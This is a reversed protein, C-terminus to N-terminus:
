ADKESSDSLYKQLKKMAKLRKSCEEVAERTYGKLEEESPPEIAALPDPIEVGSAGSDMNVITNVTKMLNSEFDPSRKYEAKLQNGMILGEVYARFIPSNVDRMGLSYEQLSSYFQQLWKESPLERSFRKHFIAKVKLIIKKFAAYSLGSIIAILAISALYMLWNEPPPLFYVVVLRDQRVKGEAIDKEYRRRYNWAFAGLEITNDRLTEMISADLISSCKPCKSNSATVPEFCSPCCINTDICSEEYPSPLDSGGVQHHMWDQFEFIAMEKMVEQWVLMQTKKDM